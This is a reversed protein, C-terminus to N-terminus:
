QRSGGAQRLYSRYVGLWQDFNLETATANIQFSQERAVHKWQRYTFVNKFALRLNPKYRTFGFTVFEAWSLCRKGLKQDGNGSSAIGTRSRLELCRTERRRIRLLVSDVEPIPHFDTRRLRHVIQFEFRPKALLSFLTENPIGAFKRAPERQMILHAEVPHMSDLLKRVIAATRSYPISAFVKLDVKPPARYELFDCEVIEVNMRHRFRERLIGALRRDMEIAIVRKAYRALEATIIGRGAGIDIVTDVSTIGSYAVLRRVLRENTLFNQALQIRNEQRKRRM